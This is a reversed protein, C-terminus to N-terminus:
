STVIARAVPRPLLKLLVGAAKYQMGPVVAGTGRAWARLSETVVREKSVFAVEPLGREQVARTMDTRVYGPLVATVHVGDKGAEATLSESLSVVFAKTAAYVAGEPSGSLLGAVSAVNIIGIPGSHDGSRRRQLQVPLVARALRTVAGINLALMGEISALDQHAFPGGSSCGANNVLVDIPAATEGDARLREEVTALDAPDALDAPRTEVAVGYEEHLEAALTEIAEARRAVLVLNCGRRALQRAYEAGIGASAGTIM